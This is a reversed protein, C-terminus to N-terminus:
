IVEDLDTFESMGYDDDVPYNELHAKIDDDSMDQIEQIMISVLEPRQQFIANAIDKDKGYGEWLLAVALEGAGEDSMTCGKSMREGEETAYYKRVDPKFTGNDGWSIKRFATYTNGHEEIIHDFDPSIEYTFPKTMAM